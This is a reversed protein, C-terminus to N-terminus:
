KYIKLIDVIHSRCMPCCGSGKRWQLKACNHCMCFHGCPYLAVETVANLCVICTNKEDSKDNKNYEDDKILNHEFCNIEIGKATGLGLIFWFKFKFKSGLHITKLIINNKWITLISNRSVTFSIETFRKLYLDKLEIIKTNQLKNTLDIPNDPLDNQKIQRPDSTTVGLTLKQSTSEKIELFTITIWDDVRIQEASFGYCAKIKEDRIFIANKQIKINRGRTQHIKAPLFDTNIIQLTTPADSIIITAWLEKETDLLKEVVEKEECDIGFHIGRKTYYFFLTKNEEFFSSQLLYNYFKFEHGKDKNEASIKSSFGIQIFKATKAIQHFKVVFKENLKLPHSSFLVAPVNKSNSYIAITPDNFPVVNRSYTSHFHM